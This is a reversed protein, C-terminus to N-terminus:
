GGVQSQSRFGRARQMLRDEVDLQPDRPRLQYVFEHRNTVRFPLLNDSVFEFPFIQYWPPPVPQSVTLTEYGPASITVERTGYYTFDSSVPTLGLREGDVEVLAGPPNTRITLRRSVCGSEATVLALLLLMSAGTPFRRHAM